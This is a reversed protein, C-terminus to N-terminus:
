RLAMVALVGAVALPVYNTKAPTATMQAPASTAATRSPDEAKASESPFRQYTSVNNERNMREIDQQVRYRMWDGETRPPNDRNFETSGMFNSKLRKKYYAAILRNAQVRIIYAQSGYQATKAMAILKRAAAILENAPQTRIFDSVEGPLRKLMESIQQPTWEVPRQEIDQSGM